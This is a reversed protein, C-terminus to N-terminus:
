KKKKAAKKKEKVDFLNMQGPLESNAYDKEIREIVFITALTGPKPLHKTASMEQLKRYYEISLALNVRKTGTSLDKRSIRNKIKM